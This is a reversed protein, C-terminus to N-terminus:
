ASSRGTSAKWRIRCFAKWGTNTAATGKNRMLDDLLAIDRLTDSPQAGTTQVM